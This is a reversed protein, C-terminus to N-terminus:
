EMIAKLVALNVRDQGHLSGTIVVPPQGEEGLQDVILDAGSFDENITYVSTTIVTKLGAARASRIGNQSDEIAICDVATMGLQKMAYDYIDPAPKKAPVIDGAAIVDFWNISDEGLTYKLLNEVNEPSTTTVISISVGASRAEDILSIVGPRLSIKGDRLLAAYVKNKEHHLELLLQDFNEPVSWDPRFKEVYFRMREKGGTVALLEGYREVSWEWDMGRDKFAQNFAVRHGDRETEALTGDVDFLIAKLGM